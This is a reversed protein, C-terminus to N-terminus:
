LGEVGWGLVWRHSVNIWRAAFTTLAPKNTESMPPPCRSCHSLCCARGVLLQRGRQLGNPLCVCVIHLFSYFRLKTLLKVYIFHV